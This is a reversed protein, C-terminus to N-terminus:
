FKLYFRLRLVAVKRLVAVAVFRLQPTATNRHQPQPKTSRLEPYPALWSTSTNRNFFIFISCVRSRSVMLQQKAPHRHQPTATGRNAKFLVAVAVVVDCNKEFVSMRHFEHATSCHQPIATRRQHRKQNLSRLEAVMSNTTNRHRPTATNRHQPQFRLVAVGRCRLEAVKKNLATATNRHQPSASNRNRAIIEFQVAVAVGCSKEFGCGRCLAIASNRHQPTKCHQPTATGRHYRNKDLSRLM